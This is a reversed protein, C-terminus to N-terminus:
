GRFAMLLEESYEIQTFFEPQFSEGLRCIHRLHALGSNSYRQSSKWGANSRLILFTNMNNYIYDGRSEFSTKTLDVNGTQSSISLQVYGSFGQESGSKRFKEINVQAFSSSLCTVAFLIFVFKKM